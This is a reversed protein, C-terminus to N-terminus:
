SGRDQVDTPAIRPTVHVAWRPEKSGKRGAKKLNESRHRLADPNPLEVRIRELEDPDTLDRESQRQGRLIEGDPDNAEQRLVGQREKAPSLVFQIFDDSIDVYAKIATQADLTAGTAFNLLWPQILPADTVSPHATDLLTLFWAQRKKSNDVLNQTIKKVHNFHGIDLSWSGSNVILTPVQIEENLKGSRKGPDLIIAGKFPLKQNLCPSLTQMALTAGASHGVIVINSLNLSNQFSPLSVSGENRSNHRFISSGHGTQLKQLIHVTEEVEVCRLAKMDTM